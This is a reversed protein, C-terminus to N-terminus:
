YASNPNLALDPGGDTKKKKLYLEISVYGTGKNVYGRHSSKCLVLLASYNRYLGQSGCLRFCKSHSGKCFLNALMQALV